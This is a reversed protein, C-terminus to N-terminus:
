TYLKGEDIYDVVEEIILNDVSKGNFINSRVQTSSINIPDINLIMIKGSGKLLKIDSIKRDSILDWTNSNKDIKSDPRTLVLINVLDLFEEWKHWLKIELFADSGMIWIIQDNKFERLVEKASDIAYSFGERRIERDDVTIKKIREFALSVMKLRDDISGISQRHPPMGNPVVRIEDFPIDRLLNVVIEIHGNHVPDFTGGFIGILKSM